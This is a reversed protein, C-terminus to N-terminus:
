ESSLSDPRPLSGVCVTEIYFVMSILRYCSVYFRINRNVSICDGLHYCDDWVSSEDHVEFLSMKLILLLLHFRRVPIAATAPRERFLIGGNAMTRRLSLDVQIM